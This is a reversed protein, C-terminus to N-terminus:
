PEEIIKLDTIYPKGNKQSITFILQPTNDFQILLTNYNKHHKISCIGLMGISLHSNEEDRELITNLKGAVELTTFESTDCGEQIQYFLDDILGIEPEVYQEGLNEIKESGIKLKWIGEPYTGCSGCLCM